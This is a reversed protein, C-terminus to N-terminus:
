IPMRLIDQYAQIVRDRVALATQLTVEANTVATVVDALEAKGAIGKATMEEAKKGTAIAANAGDGLLEAFSQTPDASRPEMGPEQAAKVQRAYAGIVNSVSLAM